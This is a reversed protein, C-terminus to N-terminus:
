NPNLIGYYSILKPRIKLAYCRLNVLIQV